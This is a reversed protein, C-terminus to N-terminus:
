YRTNGKGHEECHGSTRHVPIHTIHRAAPTPFVRRRASSDQGQAQRVYQRDEEEAQVEGGHPHIFTYNGNFLRVM